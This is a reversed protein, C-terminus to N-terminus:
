LPAAVAPRGSGAEIRQRARCLLARWDDPRGLCGALGYKAYAFRPVDIGDEDILEGLAASVPVRGAVVDVVEERVPASACGLSGHNPEKVDILDAGGELAPGVEMADRVSVLLGAM